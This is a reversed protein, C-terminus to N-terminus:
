QCTKRNKYIYTAEFLQNYEISPYLYEEEINPFRELMESLYKSIQNGIRRYQAELKQVNAILVAPSKKLTGTQEFHRNPHIKRRDFQVVTGLSAIIGLRIVKLSVAWSKRGVSRPANVDLEM